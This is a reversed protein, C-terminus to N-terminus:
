DWTLKTPVKLHRQKLDVQASKLAIRMAASFHQQRVPQLAYYSIAKSPLTSCLAPRPFLRSFDGWFRPSVAQRPNRFPAQSWPLLTSPPAPSGCPSASHELVGKAARALACKTGPPVLLITQPEMACAVLRNNRAMSAAWTVTGRAFRSVITCHPRGPLPRQASPGRDWLKLHRLIREIISAADMLSVIKLPGSCRPCLLPDAGYVKKILRAWTRRSRRSGATSPDSFPPSPSLTASPSAAKRAPARCVHSWQGYYRILQHGADPIHSCLAALFDLAPYTLAGAPHASACGDHNKPAYVSIDQQNAAAVHAGVEDWGSELMQM